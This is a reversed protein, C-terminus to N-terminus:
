PKVPQRLIPTWEVGCRAAYLDLATLPKGDVSKLRTLLYKECWEKFTARTADKVDLLGLTDIGSYLLTLTAEPLGSDFCCGVALLRNRLWSVIPCGNDGGYEFQM